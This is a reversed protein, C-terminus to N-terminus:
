VGTCEEPESQGAGRPRGGGGGGGGGGESAVLRELHTNKIPKHQFSSM